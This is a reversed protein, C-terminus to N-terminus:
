SSYKTKWQSLLNLAEIPTLGNPDIKELEKLIDDGPYGFLEAQFPVDQRKKNEKKRSLRPRGGPDLEEKELNSLIERARSVVGDPIGALKAVQIGYSRSCGGPVIKRLFVIRDKWEKVAINHNRVREKVLGIDVLEHYHTAFLTRPGGDPKDHLYETVAWAISLGDFTSTGRGVEDLLVLSRHTSNHLIEATENMEVMFTSQGFALYDAAGIRTFIRDVLGIDAHTAPVFSGMQAMIVILATQRMYTSKGAMNPGTIILIQDSSRNLLVDNPVYTEREDYTEVVPHRGDVIKIEDGDHVRPRVYSRLAAIEALSLLADLTAISTATKQIRPIVELLRTRLLAFIEEELELITEQANLVKLEYEKLDETIYREANALTQKRIYTNPVKSQHSKTVEIYYGFVRNYGVKLNSIGTTERETAEIAAIWEKGRLSINRLEDLEPNYGDRIVGGDKLTAPPADVLVAAIAHAVYSLDDMQRLESAIASDGDTLLRILSPIQECSTRLHVLDRPTASRLSIKGAIRELDGIEKLVERLDSRSVSAEVFGAVAENRRGIEDIDLLPYLLWSRLMRAGMPTSTRDLLRLLTGTTAGDKLNRFIELNRLTALDLVMYNGLHYVRPPKIHIPADYRTQRVYSIIIGAAVTSASNETLGFGELNQVGYQERLTDTCARQDAMWEEVPHVYFRSGGLIAKAQDSFKDAVLIEKPDLRELEQAALLDQSTSTVLLEGTSLDFAALASYKGDFALAVVFHNEGARLIDSEETLGPTLVRTVERRVIGKAKRPDEMQDCVAVREGAALLRSIYASAAHHPFGCMPVSEEKNKDRTTLAIDLIRSAKTADDFFMEYFDGMRFLLIAEPHRAKNEMYQRMM